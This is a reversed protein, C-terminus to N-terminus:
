SDPYHLGLAKALFIAMEVRTLTSNPCFNGGGCGATIGSAALAEVHQFGFAGTPVDGFTAVLPAPSLQLVYWLTVGKMRLTFDNSTSGSLTLYVRYHSFNGAANDWNDITHHGVDLDNYGAQWGSNGTTERVDLQTCGDAAAGACQYIQIKVNETLSSDYYFPTTGWLLAGEPLHFSAHFWKASSSGWEHIAGNSFHGYQSDHQPDFEVGAINYIIFDNIGYTDPGGSPTNIPSEGEQLVDPSFSVTVGGETEYYDQAVALSSFGVVVLILAFVVLSKNRM